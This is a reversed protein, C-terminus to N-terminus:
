ARRLASTIRRGQAVRKPDTTPNGDKDIICGPPADVGKAAALTIKGGAVRTTAFDLVM